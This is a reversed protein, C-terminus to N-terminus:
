CGGNEFAVFFAEVDAGTVGGDLDTDGCPDGAEFALFFAEVDAGTVGGDQDFDAPCAPCAPVCVGTDAFTTRYSIPGTLTARTENLVTANTGTANEIGLTSTDTPGASGGEGTVTLYRLEIAGDEFLAVQFTSPDGASGFQSVGNWQVITRLDVGSTGLTQIFAGGGGIAFNLDDWLAYIANNPVGASPIPGNTFATSTPTSFQINGNTSVFLSTFATGYFNFSFGIPQAASVFDDLGDMATIRTGTASIDEFAGAGDTTFASYAACATGSGAFTGGLVGVCNNIDTVTCSGDTLCCAGIAEAVTFNLTLGAGANRGEADTVTYPLVAGGLATTPAVVVSGSFINDGALLDPANGDDLLALSGSGGISSDDVVVALGTSTPVLGPTVTVALTVQQVGDRAVTGPTATDTASPNTPVADIGICITDWIADPVAADNFSEFFRFTWTGTGDELSPLTFTFSTLDRVATSTGTTFPNLTFTSGDPATVFIDAEGNFVANSLLRGTAVITNVQGAVTFNATRIDNTAAPNAGESVVNDFTATQAATPCAPAAGPSTTDVVRFNANATGTRSQGDTISVPLTYLAAATGALVAASGSFINDGAVADPAVGNDLLTVTGAGIGTGDVTVGLGTSAPFQGPTVTVFLNGTGTGDNGAVPLFTSVATPNTPVADLGFCIQQWVADPNAGDDFSEFFRFTWTGTGDELTPLTFTFSTLDRVATSTGTTFPNLIYTSGDPATVQVDAELNFIATSVLRGTARITNVQGAITFNATSVGNLASGLTGESNQSTFTATELATPCGPIPGVINVGLNFTASSRGQDDLAVLPLTGTGTPAAADITVNASFINDGAVADPAVGNDLLIASGGSLLASTITVGSGVNAFTSAPNTGPFVTATVTLPSGATVPSPTGTAATISPNTPTVSPSVTFQFWAIDYAGLVPGTATSTGAPSVINLTVAQTGLLASSAASADAFDLVNGTQFTGQINSSGSFPGTATNFRGYGIFYTGVALTRALATTDSDDIGAIPNLNSDFLFMDRDYATDTTADHNITIVGAEPNTAFVTPVVPDVSYTATYPATTTTGGTVRYFIQEARGFGYWQNARAPITLTTSTSSTQVTAEATTPGSATATLGLIAGTHGATGTTTIALRHRYIGLTAAATGVRFTDRSTAGALSSTGTTTGSLTDGAVLGLAPTATAKTENPEVEPFDVALAMTPLTAAIGATLFLAACTRIKM